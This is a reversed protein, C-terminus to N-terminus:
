KKETKSQLLAEAEAQFAKLEEAHQAPLNKQERWWKVARTYCDRAMVPDGLRHHCMALFFLDFADFQGNGKALSKELTAAAEKYQGNRYQVVGLTNLLTVDEPKQKIAQQILKLAQAPDRSKEPGTVLRWAQNNLTMPDNPGLKIAQERDAKARDAHGLAEHCSARLEYLRADRPYQEILSTYDSVAEKFRQSMRFAQARLFRASSDDPHRDLFRSADAAADAWRKLRFAAVAREHRAADFDPCFALAATLHAYAREPKEAELLQTGLRFHADADFPNVYLDLIARGRQYEAMKKPDVLEAGVVRVEFPGPAAADAEPYPPADWDLGLKALESRIRRLDWVRLGDNARVVLKTGDPTFVAEDTVQLPDELRALERGTALEVLRYIGNWQGMVVLRSDPSVDWPIGPGLPPGPEWTGVAYARGGDNESALWRGDSSFRCYHHGDAPSQWVRRGTAAEYVNVCYAHHGFAVWRGDPSVSASAMSTGAEVRRPQSAKPHLIWGGAYEAMGYGAFMAQAIVQGNSSAAIANNGSFFPLREPPGITLRGPRAPDPRVPWRFLGAFRNTLLNGAGDFCVNGAFEEKPLKVFALERGSELDFLALGDTFVQAALCGGPHVAPRDSYPGPHDHLLARYERADAVSWLGIQEQRAGVRAAALRRGSHDFRLGESTPLLSHTSFLLRGTHVDFLHVIGDWGCIALRDGSPNFDGVTGGTEPPQLVRTLHLSQTALDFAYLHVLGSNGDSVALTRGDPSWACMYAGWPLTVTVLLAGTQLNRVQLVSGSLVAVAVETPHLWPTSPGTIGKPALRHRCIGTRTEYVRLSGDLYTLAILRGDPRFSWRNVTDRLDLRRIPEAEALDWLQCRRSSEGYLVLLRGPGFDATAPEGLEPFRAVEEDDAIRRISCSGQKTTRAYLEFDYSLEARHTGPPFGPFSHTIHIDPLALAAIAENRLQDFWEPPQDLERGIEAAKKLAALAEFRQGPRRSYRIGRAAFVLAEAERLHALVRAKGEASEARQRLHAEREADEARQRAQGSQVVAVTSLVSGAVLLVAVIVLLSAVAPNRRCWRWTREHWPTRRARIPRDALFRRLDEALAEATAYREAPERAMAKLIITELDRPIRPDCQSPRPPPPEGTRVQELLALRDSATIAPRLTAMEYLTVGVGYVESRVDCRGELREPAMFRLTGVLDGANTLNDSDDLKALGFDTIWVVGCLDLLLNSPKIDRHLIGHQHAHALAEAVQLGVQALSRFYQSEPLSTLRSGSGAEAPLPATDHPQPPAAGPM